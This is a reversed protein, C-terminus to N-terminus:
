KDAPEVSFTMKYRFLSVGQTRKVALALDPTIDRAIIVGRCPGNGLHEDIWSMYYLLQGLARNRGQSVKLEFVVFRGARDVALIDIRGDSVPYEVGRIGAHEYLHLGPEICELNKSLFDRLDAETAFERDLEDEFEDEIPESERGSLFDEYAAKIRQYRRTVTEGSPTNGEPWHTDKFEQFIGTKQFLDVIYGRRLSSTYSRDWEIEM